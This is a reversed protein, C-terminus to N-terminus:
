RLLEELAARADEGRLIAGITLPRRALAARRQAADTRAHGPGARALLEDLRAALASALLELWDFAPPPPADM